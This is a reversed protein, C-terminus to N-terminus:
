LPGDEASAPAPTTLKNSPPNTSTTAANEPASTNAAPKSSLAVSPRGNDVAHAYAQIAQAEEIKKQTRNKIENINSSLKANLDETDAKVEDYKKDATTKSNSGQIPIDMDLLAAHRRQTTLPNDPTAAATDNYARTDTTVDEPVSLEATSGSRESGGSVEPNAHETRSETMTNDTNNTTEVPSPKVVRSGPENIVPVERIESESVLATSESTPDTPPPQTVTSNTKAEIAQNKNMYNIYLVAFVIVHVIAALLFAPLWKDTSKTTM